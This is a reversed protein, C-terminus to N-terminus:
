KSGCSVDMFDAQCCSRSCIYDFIIYFIQVVVFITMAKYFSQYYRNGAVPLLFDTRIGSV